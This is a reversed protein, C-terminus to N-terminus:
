FNSDQERVLLVAESTYINPMWLSGIIALTAALSTVILIPKRKEFLARLMSVLDATELTNLELNANDNIM